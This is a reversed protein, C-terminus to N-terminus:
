ATAVELGAASRTLARVADVAIRVPARRGLQKGTMGQLRAASSNRSTQDGGCALSNEGADRRRSACVARSCAGATMRRSVPFV